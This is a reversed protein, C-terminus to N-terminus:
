QKIEEETLPKNKARAKPSIEENEKPSKGQRRAKMADSLQRRKAEEAKLRDAVKGM